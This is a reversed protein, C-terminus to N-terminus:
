TRSTTSSASPSPRKPNPKTLEEFVAAAMAPTFEKSSLGYRGGIVQPMAGDGRAPWTEVLATIVDQYLPEGLAGPEKCRDLVAIRRTTKPSPRSSSRPTSRGSCGSRSWVSRRGRGVLAEVAEEVAGSGSGIIVAVREADPAGVYDFLHYQRGVLGAFRDMTEQVIGPLALYFPNAAERAQFFVDPNQASGRLVPRDPSLSRDRHARVGGRRVDGPHGRRDTARDQQGRALHPVRRLFPSLPGPVEPDGRPRDHGHGPGGPGLRLGADGLRDVPRGDRRESGRLDVARPDGAGARRHPLGDPDTRGRDQVHQPGDPAPGAVLHVDDVPAPRSAGHVTGAAGAESQMEMVEPVTGFLNLKGAAAWSDAVEGMPSAPTIPYIAIVESLQYAISAAAENGEVTVYPRDM